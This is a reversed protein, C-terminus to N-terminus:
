RTNSTLGGVIMRCYIKCVLMHTHTHPPPSCYYRGSHSAEEFTCLKCYTYSSSDPCLFLFIKVSALLKHKYVYTCKWLPRHPLMLTTPYTIVIRCNSTTLDSCVNIQLKAVQIDASQAAPLSDSTKRRLKWVIGEIAKLNLGFGNWWYSLSVKMHITHTSLLILFNCVYTYTCM